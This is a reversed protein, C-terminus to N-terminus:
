PRRKIADADAEARRMAWFSVGVLGLTALGTLGYAAIVFVWQNM